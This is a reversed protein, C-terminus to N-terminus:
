AGALREAECEAFYVANDAQALEFEERETDGVPVLVRGAGDCGGCIVNYGNNTYAMTFDDDAAVTAASLGQCDINPNVMLGRGFCIPCLQAQAPIAVGDALLQLRAIIPIFGHPYFGCFRM